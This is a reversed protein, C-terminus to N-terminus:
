KGYDAQSLDLPGQLRAKCRTGALVVLYPRNEEAEEAIITEIRDLVKKGGGIAANRLNQDMTETRIIGNVGSSYQTIRNQFVEGFGKAFEMLLPAAELLFRNGVTCGRIGHSNDPSLALARIPLTRRDKLRIKEFTVILRDRKKGPSAKGILQDGIDLLRFGGSYFPLWVGAKVPVEFSQSNIHDILALDIDEGEPAFRSLDYDGGSAPKQILPANLADPSLNNFTHRGSTHNKEPRSAAPPLPPELLTKPVPPPTFTPPPAEIDNEQLAHNQPPRGPNVNPEPERAPINKRTELIEPPLIAAIGQTSSQGMSPSAPIASATSGTEIIPPRALPAIAGTTQRPAQTLQARYRERAQKWPNNGPALWGSGIAILGGGLVLVAAMAFAIHLRSLKM